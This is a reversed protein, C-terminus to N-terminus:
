RSKGEFAPPEPKFSAQVSQGLAEILLKPQFFSGPVVYSLTPVPSAPLTLSFTQGRSQNYSASTWTGINTKCNLRDRYHPRGGARAVCRAGITSM